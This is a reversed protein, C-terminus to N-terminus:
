TDKKQPKTKNPIQRNSKNEENNDETQRNNMAVLKHKSTTPKM